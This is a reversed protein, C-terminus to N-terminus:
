QIGPEAPYKNSINLGLGGYLYPKMFDFNTFAYQANLMIAADRALWEGSAFFSFHDPCDIGAAVSGTFGTIGTLTEIVTAKIGNIEPRNYHTYFLQSLLVGAGSKIFFTENSLPKSIPPKKGPDTPQGMVPFWCSFVILFALWM